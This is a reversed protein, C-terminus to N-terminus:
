FRVRLGISLSYMTTYTGPAFSIEQNTVDFQALIQLYTSVRQQWGAGLTQSKLTFVEKGGFGSSSQITREDATFGAGARLSVFNEADGLYRRLTVSGSTSLGADNSILYPRFCFWYSGFYYGVSGVYMTLSSSSGFSLHRAGLSGEFQSGLRMYLEAGGRHRPFLVSGSYGYNLYAYVGETIRPYLDAEMQIGNAAFRRAYNLRAFISGFGTRRGVQIFATNMPDYTDAFRDTAANVEITSKMASSRISSRLVAIDALSSHLDELANLTVLAEDERGLAKLARAKRLLFEEGSPYLRLAREATELAIGYQERWLELDALASLADRHSPVDDLVKQFEGRAEDWRRDWAYTRGLLVRADSYSPTRQLLATCFRRADDRQNNFALRRAVAFLDDDSLKLTDTQAVGSQYILLGLLVAWTPKM